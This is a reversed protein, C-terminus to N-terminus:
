RQDPLHTFFTELILQAAVSDRAAIKRQSFRKGAAQGERLLRDASGSTYREDSFSVPLQLQNGLQNGIDRVRRSLRTEAGAADLPLGFVLHAIKWEKVLANVTETRVRGDTHQLDRTNIAPIAQATRLLDNGVALGTRQTGYDFALYTKPM